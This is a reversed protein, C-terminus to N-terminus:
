ISAFTRQGEDDGKAKSRKMAADEFVDTAHSGLDDAKFIATSANPSLHFRKSTPSRASPNSGTISFIMKDDKGAMLDDCLTLSRVIIIKASM